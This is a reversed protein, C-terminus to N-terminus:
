AQLIQPYQRETSTALCTRAPLLHSIQDGAGLFCAGPTDRFIFLALLFTTMTAIFRWTVAKLISRLKSEKTASM